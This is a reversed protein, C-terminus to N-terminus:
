HLIAQGRDKKQRLDTAVKLDEPIHRDRTAWAQPHGTEITTSTASTINPRDQSTEVEKDRTLKLNTHNDLIKEFRHAQDTIQDVQTALTSEGEQHHM